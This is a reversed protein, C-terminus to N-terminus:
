PAYMTNSYFMRRSWRNTQKQRDTQFTYQPLVMSHIRIGNPITLPTPHRIPTNSPTTITSPSPATKPTFKSHEMTILPSKTAYNHPLAHVSRATMQSPSYSWTLCEYTLHLLTSCLSPSLNPSSECLKEGMTVVVVTKRSEPNQGPSGSGPSSTVLFTFGLTYFWDANVPALSLSHCHCWSPMTLCFYILSTHSFNVINEYRCSILRFTKKNTKQRYQRTWSRLPLKHSIHLFTVTMVRLFDWKVARQLPIIDHRRDPNDALKRSV